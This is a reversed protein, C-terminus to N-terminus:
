TAGATLARFCAGTIVTAVVAIGPSQPLTETQFKADKVKKAGIM